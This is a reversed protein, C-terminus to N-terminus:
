WAALFNDVEERELMGLSFQLCGSCVDVHNYRYLGSAEFPSRGCLKCTADDPAALSPRNQSIKVVCVDCVVVDGGAMMHTVERPQRGCTTCRTAEGDSVRRPQAATAPPTSLALLHDVVATAGRKVGREHLKRSADPEGYFSLGAWAAVALEPDAVEAWRKLLEKGAASKRLGIAMLVLAQYARATNRELDLNRRHAAVDHAPPHRDVAARKLDPEELQLGSILVPEPLASAASLALGGLSAGYHKGPERLRASAADAVQSTALACAAEWLVFRLGEDQTREIAGLMVPVTSPGITRLEDLVVRVRDRTRLRADEAGGPPLRDYSAVESELAQQLWRLDGGIRRARALEIYSPLHSPHDRLTERFVKVAENPEGEELLTCGLAHRAMVDDPNALLAQHCAERARPYEGLQFWAMAIRALVKPDDPRDRLYQRFHQIANTYMGLEYAVLGLHFRATPAFKDHERLRTFFKGAERYRGMALATVGIDRLVMPLQEPAPDRKLAAVFHYQAREVLRRQAGKQKSLALLARGLELHTEWAEPALRCASELNRVGAGAEGRSVDLMGMALRLDAREGDIRVAQDLYRTAAKHREIGMLALGAVVLAEANAPDDSLAKRALSLARNCDQEGGGHFLGRSLVSRALEIRLAPDDPAAHIQDELRSISWDLKNHPFLTTM